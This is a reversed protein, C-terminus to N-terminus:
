CQVSLGVVRDCNLMQRVEQTTTSFIDVLELTQRIREIVRALTREQKALKVQHEKQAEM